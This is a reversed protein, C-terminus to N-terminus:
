KIIKGLETAIFEAIWSQAKVNPHLGDNQMWEPKTIVQELYFPMLPTDTQESLRPYIDAFAQGYRKGYNTPVRIQMLIPKANQAKITEIIANLNKSIITPSFGRLGDNAGLEVLVYDPQHTTLLGPLRALGNGSTDGSISANIVNIKQNQASLQEPLLVPWSEEVPIKYGASLSDGVILLTNSNAASSFILLSFILSVLKIM